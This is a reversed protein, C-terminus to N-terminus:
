IKAKIQLSSGALYEQEIWYQAVRKKPAVQIREMQIPLGEDNRLDYIIASLMLTGYMNLAELPTLKDGRLLHARVQAKQTAMAEPNWQYDNAM